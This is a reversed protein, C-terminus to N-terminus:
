GFLSRGLDALAQRHCRFYTTRPLNMREAVAEHPGIQEIYYLTLLVRGSPPADGLDASPRRDGYMGAYYRAAATKALDEPNGLAQLAEKAATAWDGAAVAVDTRPRTVQALWDAYRRCAVNLVRDAGDAEGASAFGLAALLSAAEEPAPLRWRGPQVAVVRPHHALDGCAERLMAGFAGPVTAAADLWFLAGPEAAPPGDMWRAPGPAAVHLGAGHAAPGRIAIYGVAGGSADVAVIWRDPGAEPAHAAAPSGAALLALGPPEEGRGVRRVRVDGGLVAPPNLPAWWASERALSSVHHWAACADDASRGERLLRIRYDISTRRWQREAWPRQRAVAGALRRRLATPFRYARADRDMTSLSLLTPWAGDVAARGVMAVLEARDFAPLVAAAAIVNDLDSSGAGARWARRRSGPHLIHEILFLALRDGDRGATGSAGADPQLMLANAALALLQPRGGTVGYAEQWVAANSIGCRRFFEGVEAEALDGLPVELLARTWGLDRSWLQAARQRGALILCVGTELQRFVQGRLWADQELLDEYGDVIIVLGDRAARLNIAAVVAPSLGYVDGPLGLQQAISQGLQEASRTLSAADLMLTPIGGAQVSRAFVRLLASKGVGAPGHLYVAVPRRRATEVAQRLTALEAERGVFLTAESDDVMQGLTRGPHAPDLQTEALGHERL